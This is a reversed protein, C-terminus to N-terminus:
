ECLPISAVPSDADPDPVFYLNLIWNNDVLKYWTSSTIGMTPDRAERGHSYCVVSVATGEPYGPGSRQTTNPDAYGYAGVPKGETASYTNGIKGSWSKPSDGAWFVVVAIVIALLATAGAAGGIIWRRRGHRWPSPKRTGTARGASVDPVAAQPRGKDGDPEGSLAAGKASLGRLAVYAAHGERWLPEFEQRDGGLKDVIGLFEDRGPMFDKDRFWRSMTSQTSGISDAIQLLTFPKRRERRRQADSQRRLEELRLWPTRVRRRMEEVDVDEQITMLTEL